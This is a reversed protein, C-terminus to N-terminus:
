LKPGRPKTTEEVSKQYQKMDKEAEMEKKKQQELVEELRMVTHAKADVLYLRESLIEDKSLQSNNVEYIIGEMQLMSAEPEENEYPVIIVEHVSSPIMCYKEGYIEAIADQAEPNFIEIAGHIKENNTLIHMRVDDFVLPELGEDGLMSSLMEAMSSLSYNKERSMNEWLQQKLEEETINWSDLLQNTVACSAIEGDINGILVRYTIAFDGERIYPMDQLKSENLEFNVLWGRICPAAQSYDTISSIQFGELEKHTHYTNLVEQVINTLPRGKLYSEYHGELYICPAVSVGNETPRPMVATLEVGNNKSVKQLDVTIGPLKAEVEERIRECFEDYTMM